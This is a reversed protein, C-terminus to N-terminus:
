TRLGREYEYRVTVAQAWWDGVHYEERLYEATKTHGKEAAGCADLIAYWEASSKGTKELIVEDSFGRPGKVTTM